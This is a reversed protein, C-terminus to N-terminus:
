GSHSDVKGPITGNQDMQVLNTEDRKFPWVTPYAFVQIKQILGDFIKHAHIESALAAADAAATYPLIVGIQNEDFWGLEDISRLRDGLFHCFNKLRKKFQKTSELQFVIMSFEHNNRDSRARERALIKRLDDISYFTVTNDSIFLTDFIKNRM